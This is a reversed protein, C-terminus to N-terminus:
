KQMSKLGPAECSIGDQLSTQITGYVAERVSASPTANYAWGPGELFQSHWRESLALLVSVGASIISDSTARLALSVVNAINPALAAELTEFDLVLYNPDPEANISFSLLKAVSDLTYNGLVLGDNGGERKFVKTLTLRLPGQVQMVYRHLQNGSYKLLCDLWHWRELSPYVVATLDIETLRPAVIWLVEEIGHFGEKQAWIIICDVVELGRKLSEHSQDFHTGKLATQIRESLIKIVLENYTTACIFAAVGISEKVTSTNYSSDFITEFFEALLTKMNSSEVCGQKALAALIVGGQSRVGAELSTLAYRLNPPPYGSSRFGQPKLAFMPAYPIDPAAGSAQIQRGGLISLFSGPKEEWTSAISKFLRGLYDGCLRRVRDEDKQHNWETHHGQSVAPIYGQAMLHVVSFLSVRRINQEGQVTGRCASIVFGLRYTPQIHRTITEWEQGPSVIEEFDRNSALYLPVRVAYALARQSDPLFDWRGLIGIRGILKQFRAGIAKDHGNEEWSAVLWLLVQLHAGIIEDRRSSDQFRMSTCDQIRQVCVEPTDSDLFVQLHRSPPPHRSLEFAAEDALDAKRSEILGKCLINALSDPPAEPTDGSEPGGKPRLGHLFRAQLGHLLESLPTQFPCSDPPHMLPLATVVLYLLTSGAVLSLVVVGLTKNDVYTQIALGFSFLFFAVQVLLPIGTIVRQLKWREAREDLTWRKHADKAEKRNSVPLHNVLWSRALVGVIASFLTLLLSTFWLGNVWVQAPTPKYAVDSQTENRLASRIDMLLAESDELRLKKRSEALFSTIVSAFLGAFILLSELGTKWVEAQEKANEEAEQLYMAWAKANHNFEENSRNKQPNASTSEAYSGREAEDADLPLKDRTDSM